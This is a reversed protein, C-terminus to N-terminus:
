RARIGDAQLRLVQERPTLFQVENSCRLHSPLDKEIQDVKQHLRLVETLEPLRLGHTLFDHKMRQAHEIIEFLKITTIFADLIPPSETPQIGVVNDRLYEDDIEAPLPV